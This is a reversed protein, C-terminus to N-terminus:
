PCGAVGWAKLVLKFAGGLPHQQLAATPSAEKVYFEAQDCLAPKTWKHCSTCRQGQWAEKPLGDIPTFLPGSAILAEISKGKIAADGVTLPTSFTVPAAAIEAVMEPSVEGSTAAEPATAAAAPTVATQMLRTLLSRADAEHPSKPFRQLFLIVQVPDGAASAAAWQQAEGGAADAAEPATLTYDAALGSTWWPTQRGGSAQLVDVRVDRFLDELAMGPMALHAALAAAFPGPAADLSLTGPSAAFTLFVGAPVATEALGPAALTASLPTSRSADLVVISTRNQAATLQRLVAQLDLAQLSLDAPAAVRADVPLLYNQGANQVAQGAYYVLGTAEPGAERLARAHDTLAQGMAALDADQVRTVKFGAVTLAQAVLDADQTVGAQVAQGAYTANAVVLALRPEAQGSTALGLWLACVGLITRLMARMTM